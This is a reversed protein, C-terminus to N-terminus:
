CLLHFAPARKSNSGRKAAPGSSPQVQLHRKGIAKSRSACRGLSDPGMSLPSRPLSPASPHFLPLAPAGGWPRPLCGGGEEGGGM